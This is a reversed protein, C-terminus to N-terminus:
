YNNAKAWQTEREKEYNSVKYRAQFGQKGPFCSVQQICSEWILVQQDWVLSGHLSFAHELETKINIRWTKVKIKKNRKM